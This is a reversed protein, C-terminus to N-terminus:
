VAQEAVSAKLYDEIVRLASASGKGAPRLLPRGGRHEEIFLTAAHKASATVMVFLDVNRALQKLRDNGVKDHSLQVVVGPYSHLLMDRARQGASETLTYIAVTKNALLGALDKIGQMAEATSRDDVLVRFLEPMSLETSLRRLTQLQSPRLRNRFEGLKGGISGLLRGRLSTDPSPHVMLLELFDLLGDLVLPSAWSSWLDEALGVMEAYVGSSVGVHLLAEALDYFLKAVDAGGQTGYVLSELLQRYVPRFERRPFTENGPQLFFLLLHPLANQFRDQTTVQKILGAVEGTRDPSLLSEPSWEACGLKATEYARDWTADDRLRVLWEVWNSPVAASGAPAPTGEAKGVLAAYYDRNRRSRLFTEREGAPLAELASVAERETELNGLEYACELLLRVRELSPEAKLALAFARDFDSFAAARHAAELPHIALAPAAVPLLAALRTLFTRERDPLPLALLEDRLDARGRAIALLMFSKVVEPQLSGARKEYLGGFEPLIRENFLAAAGATDGTAELPAIDRQYLATILAWTVPLPRRVRLLEELGQISLLEAPGGLGALLQVRLFLLNLADLRFHEQLFRLHAEASARHGAGLALYFDRLVANTPRPAERQRGKRQEWSTRLLTLAKTVKKDIDPGGQGRFRFARGKTLELVARELDNKEDLVAPLCRFDSYSPGVFATIEEGLVRLDADTFALGYWVIKEDQRWHPLLTRQPPQSRLREVWPSVRAMHEPKSLIIKNDAGFFRKLFASLDLSM